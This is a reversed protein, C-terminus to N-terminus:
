RLTFINPLVFDLHQNQEINKSEFKKKSMKQPRFRYRRFVVTEFLLRCNRTASRSALAMMGLFGEKKNRSFFYLFFNDALPLTPTPFGTLPGIM